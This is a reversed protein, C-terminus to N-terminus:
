DDNKSILKQLSAALIIRRTGVRTTELRGASILNWITRPSLGAAEAADRVSYGLRQGPYWPTNLDDKNEDM